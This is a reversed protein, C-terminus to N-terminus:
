LAIDTKRRWKTERARANYGLFREVLCRDEDAMLRFSGQDIGWVGSCMAEVADGASV